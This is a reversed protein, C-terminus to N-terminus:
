VNSELGAVENLMIDIKTLYEKKSCNNEIVFDAIEETRLAGWSVKVADRNRLDELAEEYSNFSAKTAQREARVSEKASVFLVKFGEPYLQKLNRALIDGYLSELIAGKANNTKIDELVRSLLYKAIEEPNTQDMHKSWDMFDLNSKLKSYYEKYYKGIKLRLYGKNICYLGVTSKGCESLGGVSIIKM